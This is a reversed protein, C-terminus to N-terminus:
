NKNLRNLTNDIYKEPTMLANQIRKAYHISDIVETNREQLLVNAKEIENKQFSIEATKENVREDLKHILENKSDLSSIIAERIKKSVFAALLGTVIIFASKGITNVADIKNFSDNTLFLLISVMFFEAGAVIGAFLCLRFNLMLSSLTIMIFFLVFLPSNIVLLPPYIEGVIKIPQNNVTQSLATGISFMVAAPFSVEIFTIFYIFSNKIADENGIRKKLYRVTFLESIFTLILLAPGMFVKFPIVNGIIDTQTAFYTVFCIQLILVIGFLILLIKTKLLFNALLAKNFDGTENKNAM